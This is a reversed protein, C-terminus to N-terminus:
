QPKERSFIWVQGPYLEDDAIQDCTARVHEPFKDVNLRDLPLRLGLVPIALFRPPQTSSAVAFTATFAFLGTVGL